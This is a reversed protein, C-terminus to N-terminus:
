LGRESPGWTVGPLTRLREEHGSTSPQFQESRHLLALLANAVAKPSEMPTAHGAGPLEVYNADPILRAMQRAREVPIIKDEEGHLILTPIKLTSLIGTRDPRRAMAELAWCIGDVGSKAAGENPIRILDANFQNVAAFLKPSLADAAAKTGETRVKKILTRRAQQTEFNDATTQTSILGIGALRDKHREAFALAVYGGMSMGVVVARKLHHFELLEAIDDAMLDLSPEANECPNDGFGPLDPTIIKTQNALDVVVPNWMSHDFPYGHILILAPLPM